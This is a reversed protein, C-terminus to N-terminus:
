IGTRDIKIPKPIESYVEILRGKRFTRTKKCRQCKVEIIGIVGTIDARALLRGCSCRLEKMTQM